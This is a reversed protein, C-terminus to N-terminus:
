AQQLSAGVFISIDEETLRDGETGIVTTIDDVQYDLSLDNIIENKKNIDAPNRQIADTFAPWRNQLVVWRFLKLPDVKKQEIMVINRYVTYQNALRKVARPNRGILHHHDELLHEIDDSRENLVELMASQAEEVTIEQEEAMKEIDAKGELLEEQSIKQMETKFSAVKEKPSETPQTEKRLIYNWYREISKPSSHPLRISLQFNKEIFSYGLRTGKRSTDLYNEYILEFSKTIWHKDAAILYLVKRERFMTQIGELLEVVFQSDCRDLDDIFFAIKFKKDEMKEIDSALAKFHEKIKKSPNEIREMFLRANEPTDMVFFKGWAQSMAFLTAATTLVSLIIKGEGSLAELSNGTFSIYIAVCLILFSFFTLGLLVGANMRRLYENFSFRWTSIGKEKLQSKSQRYLAEMFTWWPPNVNQHQWANYDVIIWSNDSSAQLEEGLFQMFTSKGEGWRGQLHAMFARSHEKGFIDRNIIRALSKAIPRRGLKDELTPDDLHFDIKDHLNKIKTKEWAALYEKAILREGRETMFGTYSLTISIPEEELTLVESLQEFVSYFYRVSSLYDKAYAGGPIFVPFYINLEERSSNEKLEMLTRPTFFRVSPEFSSKQDILLLRDQDINFLDFGDVTQRDTKRDAGVYESPSLNLRKYLKTAYIEKSINEPSGGFMVIINEEEPMLERGIKLKINGKQYVGDIELPQETDQTSQEETTQELSIEEAEEANTKKAEFDEKISASEEFSSTGEEQTTASGPREM